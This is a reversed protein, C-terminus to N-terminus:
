EDSIGEEYEFAKKFQLLEYTQGRTVKNTHCILDYLFGDDVNMPLTLNGFLRRCQVVAEAKICDYTNM